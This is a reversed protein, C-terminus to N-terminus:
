PEVRVSGQATKPNFEGFFPYTGPPLPGLFIVVQAGGMIVKERNLEYSEFEEPTPDRNIVILRVKTDAPIVLEAPYFLHERIELTFSPPEGRAASAGVLLAAACLRPTRM